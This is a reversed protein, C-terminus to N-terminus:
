VAVPQSRRSGGNSEKLWERASPEHEAAPEEGTHTREPTPASGGPGLKKWVDELMKDRGSMPGLRSFKHSIKWVTSFTPTKM